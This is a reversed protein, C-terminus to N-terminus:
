EPHVHENGLAPYSPTLPDGDQLMVSGSEVAMGPMWISNPYVSERGDLAFDVPDSFCIVGLAGNDEAFQVEVATISLQISEIQCISSMFDSTCGDKTRVSPCQMEFKNIQM